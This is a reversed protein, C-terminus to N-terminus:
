SPAFARLVWSSLVPDLHRGSVVITEEVQVLVVLRSVLGPRLLMANVEVLVVSELSSHHISADARRVWGVHLMDSEELSQVVFGGGDLDSLMDSQGEELVSEVVSPQGVEVWTVLTLDWGEDVILGGGHLDGNGGLSGADEVVVVDTSSSLAEGVVLLGSLRADVQHWLVQVVHDGGHIDWLTDDESEVLMGVGTSEIVLEPSWGLGVNWLVVLVGVESDALIV